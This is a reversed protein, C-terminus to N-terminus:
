LDPANPLNLGILLREAAREFSFTNFAGSTLFDRMAAVRETYERESMESIFRAVDADSAFDRRDIFAGRPIFDTVDPAGLYIPITGAVMCDLLKESVYGPFICNEYALSFRYRRLAQWKAQATLPLAGRYSAYRPILAPIFAEIPRSPRNWGTGYLDFDHPLLREFSRIAKRRASYLQCPESSHKNRQICVLLRRESFPLPPEFATTRPYPQLMAQYRDGSGLGGPYTLVTPFLYHLAPEYNQPLVAPCERAWLAVRDLMGAAACERYLDRVRRRPRVINRLTHRLRISWWASPYSRIGISFADVFIVGECDDLRRSDATHFAYGLQRLHQAFYALFDHYPGLDRLDTFVRDSNLHPYLGQYLITKM